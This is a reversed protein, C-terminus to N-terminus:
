HPIGRLRKQQGKEERLRVPRVEEFELEAGEGFPLHMWPTQCHLHPDEADEEKGEAINKLRLDKNYEKTVTAWLEASVNMLVLTEGQRMWIELIEGIEITRGDERKPLASKLFSILKDKSPVMRGDVPFPIRFSSRIDWLVIAQFIHVLCPYNFTEITSM